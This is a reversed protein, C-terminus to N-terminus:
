WTVAWPRARSKGGGRVVSAGRFLRLSSTVLKMPRSRSISCAMAIRSREDIRVSVPGPPTPLDRTPKRSALASRSRKSSPVQITSHPVSVSGSKTSGDTTLVILQGRRDSACARREIYGREVLRDLLGQEWRWRWSFWRAPEREPVVVAARVAAVVLPGLDPAGRAPRTVLQDWRALFSQEGEWRTVVVGCRELPARIAKLEKRPLGLEVVLDDPTSPGAEALHSLVRAWDEDAETMRDIEDRVIPDVLAATEESLYLTKGLHIKPAVVGPRLALEFSWPWKTRPWEGFGGAGPKYPEEHCAGFLSPLSGSPNRTLLGRDRLFAEAEDLTGLAREPILRCEHDRREQLGSLV